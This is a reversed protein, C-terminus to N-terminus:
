GFVRILGSPARAGIGNRNGHTDGPVCRADLACRTGVTGGMGGM